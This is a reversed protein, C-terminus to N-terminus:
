TTIWAGDGGVLMWQTATALRLTITAYVPGAANNYVTGGSSSDAIYTSAAAQITVKGAGLKVVTITAGIDAATVSPLTVTQAGSSNVTITKGFDASTLTIGSDAAQVVHKALRAAGNVFVNTAVNVGGYPTTAAATITAIAISPPLNSVSAATGSIDIPWTGSANSGGAYAYKSGLAVGGERLNGSVNADGAVDLSYSPYATGIGVGVASSPTYTIVIIGQKGGGGASPAGAGGGGGGGYSGGAGGGSSSNDGAGGGGSGYTGWESGNGGAGHPVAGGGGGNGADGAGGAGPNSMDANVGAIGAGSPGAAGGGGGGFAMYGAGPNGGSYKITGTGGGAAGGGASTGGKACVSAGSCSAGNFYTDGGAGGGPVGAAGINYTVNNGPVLSLNSIESYGGGGGGKSGQSILGNTGAAGGGILEITNNSSNWNAPVQWSNGSVLVVRQPGGGGGSVVLADGGVSFGGGQVTLTSSIATLSGASDQALSSNGLSNGSTWYALRPPQGGNLGSSIGSLGSGDGIFRVAELVGTASMSGVIVGTGDRWIQAYVSSATASSVVDLAAYPVGTSIGVLGNGTVLVGRDAVGTMATNTSGTILFGGRNKFVTRDAVSNVMVAAGGQSDAWTFSGNATSSSYYGGAWSYNGKATNGSGGSVTAATGNAKNQYGGPVAAYDLTAANSTGGSVTSYQGYAKNSMGGGVVAYSNNATNTVGGSVAASNGSATNGSGGAVVAYTNGATNNQGGSVVAYNGGATNTNGGSITAYSGGAVQAAANRSTQLDVAGIGRANPAATGNGLGLTMISGAASIFVGDAGATLDTGIQLGRGAMTVSAVNIVSRQAMDLDSTATHNGLNDGSPLGTAGSIDGYFKNAYIEGAGTMRIVNSAGTSIVLLNGAVGPASSIHLLFCPTGTGVGIRGYNVSLTSGGVSFQGGLLDVSSHMVAYGDVRLVDVVEFEGGRCVSAPLAAWLAALGALM